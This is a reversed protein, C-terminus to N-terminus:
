EKWRGLLSASKEFAKSSKNQYKLCTADASQAEQKTTCTRVAQNESLHSKQTWPCRQRGTHGPWRPDVPAMPSSHMPTPVDVMLHRGHGYFVELHVAHYRATRATIGYTCYSQHADHQRHWKLLSDAVHGSCHSPFSIDWGALYLRTQLIIMNLFYWNRILGFMFLNNGFLM